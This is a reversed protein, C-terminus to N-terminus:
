RGVRPGLGVRCVHLSTGSNPSSGLFSCKRRPHSASAPHQRATDVLREAPLLPKLLNRLWRGSYTDGTQITGLVIPAAPQASQAPLCLLMSLMLAAWPASRGLANM